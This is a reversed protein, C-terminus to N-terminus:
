TLYEEWDTIIINNLLHQYNVTLNSHYGSLAEMPKDFNQFEKVQELQWGNELFYSCVYYLGPHNNGEQRFYDILDLGISNDDPLEKIDKDDEPKKNDAVIKQLHVMHINALATKISHDFNEELTCYNQAISFCDLQIGLLSHIFVDSEYSYKAIEDESAPLNPIDLTEEDSELSNTLAETHFGLLVYVFSSIFESETAMENHVDVLSISKKTLKNFLGM